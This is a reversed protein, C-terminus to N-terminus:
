SNLEKDFIRKVLLRFFGAHAELCATNSSVVKRYKTKDKAHVAAFIFSVSDQHQYRPDAM